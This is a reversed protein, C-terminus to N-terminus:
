NKNAVLGARAWRGGHERCANPPGFWSSLTWASVGVVVTAGCVEEGDHQCGGQTITQSIKPPNALYITPLM